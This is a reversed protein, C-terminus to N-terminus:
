GTSGLIADVTQEPTQGTTDLWLGLRPTGTAFATYLEDIQWESYVTERRGADRAAIEEPSPLLVVIQLPRTRIMRAYEALMPGAVVDELVVTFGAACYVDATAAGLMYRLRLQELAVPSADPTMEERGAVISRRFFDGEVCVAHEFRQALLRAITSKGAAM